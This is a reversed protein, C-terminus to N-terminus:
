LSDFANPSAFCYRDDSWGGILLIRKGLGGNFECFDLNELWLFWLCPAVHDVDIHVDHVSLFRQAVGTLWQIIKGIETFKAAGSRSFLDFTQRSPFRM